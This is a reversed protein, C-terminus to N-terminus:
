TRAVFSRTLTSYADFKPLHEGGSAAQFERTQRTYWPHRGLATRGGRRWDGCECCAGCGGTGRADGRPRVTGAHAEELVPRVSVRAGGPKCDNHSRSPFAWRRRVKIYACAHTHHALPCTFHSTAYVLADVDSLRPATCGLIEGPSLPKSRPVTVEYRGTWFRPARSKSEDEVKTQEPGAILGANGGTAQSQANDANMETSLDDKLRQVAAVFQITSVLALRTPLERGGEDVEEKEKGKPGEISLTPRGKEIRDGTRVTEEDGLLRDRFAHRSSPFNLRVSSTLHEADIAIEVFIYLTKITTTDIPVVVVNLLVETLTPTPKGLCSHGYHVLMDCGLAVATYDDICCAGYTVDGM